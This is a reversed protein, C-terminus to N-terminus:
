PLQTRCTPRFCALSTTHLQRRVRVVAVAKGGLDDTMGDLQIVHEAEAQPANLEKQGLPADDNGSM